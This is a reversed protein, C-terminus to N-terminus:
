WVPRQSRSLNGSDNLLVTASGEVRCFGTEVADLEHAGVSM